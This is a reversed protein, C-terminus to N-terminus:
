FFISHFYRRFTSNSLIQLMRVEDIVPSWDELECLKAAMQKKDLSISHHVFIVLHDSQSLDLTGSDTKTMNENTYIHDLLSERDSNKQFRTPECILQRLSHKECLSKLGDLYRNQAEEAETKLWDVYFDGVITARKCGRLACDLTSMLRKFRCWNAESSNVQDPGTFPRYIGIVRDIAGKKSFVRDFIIIEDDPNELSERRELNTGELVYAILRSKQHKELSQSYHIEYGKINILSEDHEPTRDAESIFFITPLLKNIANKIIMRKSTIDRACNWHSVTFLPKIHRENCNVKSCSGFLYSNSCLRPHFSKCKWNKCGHDFRGGLLFKICTESDGESSM